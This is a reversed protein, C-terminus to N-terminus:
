NLYINLTCHSFPVKAFSYVVMLLIEHAYANIYDTCSRIADHYYDMSLYLYVTNLLAVVIFVIHVQAILVPKYSQRILLSSFKNM